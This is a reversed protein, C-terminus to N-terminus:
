KLGFLLFFIIMVLVNKAHYGHRYMAFSVITLVGVYLNRVGLVNEIETFSELLSQIYRLNEESGFIDEFINRSM